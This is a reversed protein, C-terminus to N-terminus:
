RATRASASGASVDVTIKYPSRSSTELENDFSGASVDSRVDYVGEPVVLNLEGASVDLSVDDPVAGSLTADMRGASVGLEANAVDALTLYAAGASVDGRVERASGTVTAEGASVGIELIGFTGDAHLDGASVDFDADWGAEYASEPLTLVVRESGNFWWGFWFLPPRVQLTNGARRLEWGSSGDVELVAESVRGYELTFSGTSMDVDLANIGAISATLRHEGGGLSRIGGAAAGAIAVLLALGGVVAVLPVIWGPRPTPPQPAVPPQAPPPTYSASSM